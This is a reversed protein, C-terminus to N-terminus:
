RCLSVLLCVGLTSQAGHVAACCTIVAHFNVQAGSSAARNLCPSGRLERADLAQAACSLM